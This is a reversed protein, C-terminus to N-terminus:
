HDEIELTAAESRVFDGPRVGYLDELEDMVTTVMSQAKSLTRSLYEMGRDNEGMEFWAKAVAMGQVISDHIELASRQRAHAEKLREAAIHGTADRILAMLLTANDAREDPLSSLTLEIPVLAGDKKQAVARLAAGTDVIQATGTERYRQIGARHADVLHPAVLTHLPMDIAEERTYGFMETAGDNWLLIRESGADAVIVADRVHQFLRGIGFDEPQATPPM